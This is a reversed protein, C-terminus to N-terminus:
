RPWLSLLGGDFYSARGGYAMHPGYSGKGPDTFGGPKDPRRGTDQKPDFDHTVPGTYAPTPKQKAEAQRIRQQMDQKRQNMSKKKMFHLKKFQQNRFQQNRFQELNSIHPNAEIISPIGYIDEYVQESTTVNPTGFTGKWNAVIDEWVDRIPAEGKISSYVAPIENLLGAAFSGTDGVFTGLPQSIKNIPAAISKSLENTAAIHRADSPLGTAGYGYKNELAQVKGLNAFDYMAQGIDIM